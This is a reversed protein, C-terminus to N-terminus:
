LAADDYEAVLVELIDAGLSLFVKRAVKARQVDVGASRVGLVM